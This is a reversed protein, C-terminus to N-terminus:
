EDENEWMDLITGNETDLYMYIETGKFSYLGVVDIDDYGCEDGNWDSSWHLDCYEATDGIRYEVGDVQAVMEGDIEM